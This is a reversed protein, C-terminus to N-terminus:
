MKFNNSSQPSNNNYLLDDLLDPPESNPQEMLEYTTQCYNRLAQMLHCVTWGRSLISDVTEQLQFILIYLM